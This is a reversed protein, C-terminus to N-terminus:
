MSYLYFKISIMVEPDHRCSLCGLSEREYTGVKDYSCKTDQITVLPGTSHVNGKVPWRHTDLIM